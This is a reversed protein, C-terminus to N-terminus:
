TRYIEIANDYSNGNGTSEIKFIVGKNKVDFGTTDGAYFTSLITYKETTAKYPVTYKKMLLPVTENVYLSLALVGSSSVSPAFIFQINAVIEPTNLFEAFTAKNNVSDWMTTIHDPFCKYNRTNCNCVFDYETGGTMALPSGSTYNDGVCDQIPSHMRGDLIKYVTDGSMNLDYTM